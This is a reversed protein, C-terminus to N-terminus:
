KWSNIWYVKLNKGDEDISKAYVGGLREITKWSAVREELASILIDQIGLKRAEIIGLRLMENALWKGRVSPRLGYGIHGGSGWELSLRPHDITHRIQIAWLIKEDDMFFWLTSNVGNQNATIDETIISLFAEYDKGVFLRNPVDTDPYKELNWEEVMELYRSKHSINPFELHLM